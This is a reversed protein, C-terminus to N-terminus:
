AVVWYGSGLSCMILTINESSRAVFEQWTACCYEVLFSEKRHPGVRPQVYISLRNTALPILSTSNPTWFNYSFQQPLVLTLLIPICRLLASLLPARPALRGPHSMRFLSVSSLLRSMLIISHLDTWVQFDAQSPLSLTHNSSQIHATTCHYRLTM